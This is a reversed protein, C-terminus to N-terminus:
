NFQTRIIYRDATMKEMNPTENCFVVVHPIKHLIKMGSKYKTSFVMRDKLMELVSYNLFEMQGRAINFLFISKSEDVAFAVDDRKGSSLLQVEDPNMSIFVRQFWSKGNGGEEDVYFIICRDEAPALLENRLALQWPKYEIAVELIPEPCHHKALQALKHGYMVFMDPFAIAIERECPPRGKQTHIAQVWEVYQQFKGNSGYTSITGFEEFDGDKKCYEAAELATGRKRELHAHRGILTKAQNFTQVKNFCVYGQLHPTGNTGTERGFILYSAQEALERLRSVDGDSYNNITFVYHKTQVM